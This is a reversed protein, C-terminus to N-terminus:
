KVVIYNQRWVFLYVKLYFLTSVLLFELVICLGPPFFNRMLNTSKLFVFCFLVLGASKITGSPHALEFSSIRSPPFYHRRIFGVSDESPVM